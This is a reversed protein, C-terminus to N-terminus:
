RDAQGDSITAIAHKFVLQIDGGQQLLLAYADHGALSGELAIGNLLFLKVSQGRRRTLFADQRDGRTHGEVEFAAQDRLLVTSVGQKYVLQEHGDRQLTLSYADFGSILGQLRVGKLLFITAPVGGKRALNLFQDQLSSKPQTM